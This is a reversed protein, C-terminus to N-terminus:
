RQAKPPRADLPSIQCYHLRRGAQHAPFCSAAVGQVEVTPRHNPLHVTARYRRGSESRSDRYRISWCLTGVWECVSGIRTWRQSARSWHLSGLKWSVSHFYTADSVSGIVPQGVTAAVTYTEGSVEGGGNGLGGQQIIMEEADTSPALALGLCLGCLTLTLPKMVDERYLRLPPLTWVSM